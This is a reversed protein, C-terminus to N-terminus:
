ERSMKEMVLRRVPKGDKEEQKWLLSVKYTGSQEPITFYDPNPEIEFGAGIWSEPCPIEFRYRKGCPPADIRFSGDEGISKGYLNFTWDPKIGESPEPALRVYTSNPHYTVKEGPQLIGEDFRVSVDFVVAPEMIIDLDYPKLKYAVEEPSIKRKVDGWGYEIKSLDNPVPNICIHNSYDTVSGREDFYRGIVKGEPNVTGKWVFGPKEVEVRIGMRDPNDATAEPRNMMRMFELSYPNFRLTYKGDKDTKTSSSPWKGRVFIDNRRVTVTADSLPKGEADRVTGTLIYSWREDLEEQTHSRKRMKITVETTKGPEVTAEYESKEPFYVPDDAEYDPSEASFVYKGPVLNDYRDRSNNNNFRGYSYNRPFHTYTLGNMWARELQKGTESDIINAEISGGPRLKLSIKKAKNGSDIVFPDSLVNGSAKAATKEDQNIQLGSLIVRYTGQPLMKTTFINGNWEGSFPSGQTEYRSIGRAIMWLSGDKPDTWHPAYENIESADSIKQLIELSMRDWSYKGPDFKKGEADFCEVEFTCNYGKRSVIEYGGGWGCHEPAPENPLPAIEFAIIKGEPNVALEISMAANEFRLISKWLTGGNDYITKEPGEYKMLKGVILREQYPRNSGREIATRNECREFLKQLEEAPWEDKITDEIFCDSAAAFDRKILADLFKEVVPKAVSDVADHIMPNPKIEAQNEELESAFAPFPIRPAFFALTISVLLLGILIGITGRRGIPRRPTKEDLISEIRKVVTKKRVMALAGEPIPNRNSINKSLELLVSAYDSCKSGSDIVMDDCALEQEVRVRRALFWAFPHPWYAASCISVLIRWVLDRRVIHAREHLLVSRFKTEPWEKVALPFVVVPSFIGFTFPIEIRDSFLLRIGEVKRPGLPTVGRNQKSLRIGIVFLATKLQEFIFKVVFFLGGSLWVATVGVFLPHKGSRAEENLNAIGSIDAAEERNESFDNERVIIEPRLQPMPAVVPPLKAHPQSKPEPIYEIPINEHAIEVHREPLLPNEEPVIVAIAEAKITAPREGFTAVIVPFTLLGLAALTWLRHKSSASSKKLFFREILFAISPIITGALLVCLFVPYLSEFIVNM